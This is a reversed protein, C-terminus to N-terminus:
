YSNATGQGSLYIKWGSQTQFTGDAWDGIAYSVKYSLGSPSSVATQQGGGAGSPPPVLAPSYISSGGGGGGSPMTIEDTIEEITGKQSCSMALLIFSLILLIRM